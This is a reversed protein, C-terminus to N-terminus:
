GGGRERVYNITQARLDPDNIKRAWESATSLDTKTMERVYVQVAEDLVPKQEQKQLWEGAYDPREDILRQFEDGVAERRAGIEEPLAIIEKIASTPDFRTGTLVDATLFPEGAHEKLFEVYEPAWGRAKTAERIEEEMAVVAQQKYSLSGEETEAHPVGALWEKMGAMGRQKRIETVLLPMELPKANNERGAALEASYIMAGELDTNALHQILGLTMDRRAYKYDITAVFEKAGALDAKAWETIAAGRAKKRADAMYYSMSSSFVDWPYYRKDPDAAHRAAAQPDTRAWTAILDAHADITRRSAGASNCVEDFLQLLGPVMGPTLGDLVDENLGNILRNARNVRLREDPEAMVAEMAAAFDSARTPAKSDSRMPRIAGKTAPRSSKAGAADATPTAGTTPTTKLQDGVLFAAAVVVAWGGHTLVQSTIM